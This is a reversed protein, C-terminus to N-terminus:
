NVLKLLDDIHSHNKVIYSSIQETNNKRHNAIKEYLHNIRTQIKEYAKTGPSIRSFKRQHKELNRKLKPFIHNNPFVTGDSLAAINHIGIDM